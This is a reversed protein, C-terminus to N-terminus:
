SRTLRNRLSRPSGLFTLGVREISTAGASYDAADVIPQMSPPYPASTLSAGAFGRGSSFM